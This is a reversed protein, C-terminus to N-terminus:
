PHMEQRYHEAADPAYDRLVCWWLDALFGGAWEPPKHGHWRQFHADKAAFVDTPVLEQAVRRMEQGKEWQALGLQALREIMRKGQEEQRLIRLREADVTTAFEDAFLPYRAAIQRNRRKAARQARQDITLPDKSM